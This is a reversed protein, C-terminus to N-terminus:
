DGCPLHHGGDTEEPGPNTTLNGDGERDGSERGSKGIAEQGYSLHSIPVGCKRLKSAHVGYGSIYPLAEVLGV